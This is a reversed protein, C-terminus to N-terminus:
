RAAASPGGPPNSERFFVDVAELLPDITQTQIQHPPQWAVWKFDPHETPRVKLEERLHGLFVVLQKNHPKRDLWKPAVVYETTWRFEPIIEIQRSKIGTEERLERMACQLDTEGEDVHGKPLDLRKKHKMLLFQSWDRRFVLVGCSKIEPMTSM